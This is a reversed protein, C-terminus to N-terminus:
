KEEMKGPDAELFEGPGAKIREFGEFRNDKSFVSGTPPVLLANKGGNSTLTSGTLHLTGAAMMSAVGGGEFNSRFVLASAEDQVALLPPQGGTRRAQTDIIVADSGQTVGVAVLRNEECKGGIVVAESGHSIGIGATQNEECRNDLALFRASEAGIGAAQNEFCHNGILIPRAKERCGIGALRNHHCRNGRIVPEAEEDIGIGAMGNEHCDNDEVLPRTESGTRIGIGARRNRFCRNGRVLPSAGESIGIGARINEFCDNDLVMPSANDHGIGAYFNEFCTNGQIVATSGRMSGIGGGMNRYCINGTVLPACPKDEGGRIAIGTAGVHHVLNHSVTCTVGDIAIGPTGFGGIHEHSQNEGREEWHKKWKAEEYLGVQTVTFGDLSAGEAMSVGPSDGQKGGGDIITAEARALGLKGPTDDGASRLRLRPKLTIRERYIGAAVVIEDGPSAADIAAQITEHDGPVHWEEGSALAPLSALLPALVVSLFAKM